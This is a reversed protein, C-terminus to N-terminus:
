INIEKFANRLYVGIMERRYARSFMDNEVARAKKIIKKIIEEKDFDKTLEMLVPKPDVGALVIRVINEKNISVAVTLATFELSERQRLKKFSCKFNQNLPLMIEKVLSLADINKPKVGDGTYINELSIIKDEKEEAHQMKIKAHLAILAPATDSVFESFCAKNGGTAICVDGSCKLCYGVAERWWESQNYYICRNECLINGGLTASKRILPSGVAKAAELLSPFENTIESHKKLDDLKTLAGIHLYEKDKWVGKLEAIETIDILCTSTDNEQYKNVMVDTGGAIFKGKAGYLEALEIAESITAPKTYKKELIM